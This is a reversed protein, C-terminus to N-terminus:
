KKNVILSVSPQSMNFLNALFVQSVNKENYLRCIEKNRGARDTFSNIAIVEGDIKYGYDRLVVIECTGDQASAKIEWCRLGNKGRPMYNVYEATYGDAIQKFKAENFPITEMFKVGETLIDLAHWCEVAM